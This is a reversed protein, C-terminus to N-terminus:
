RLIRKCVVLDPRRLLTKISDERVKSKKPRRDWKAHIVMSDGIYMVVHGIGIPYEPNYHGWSGRFFLLDGIRLRRTDAM